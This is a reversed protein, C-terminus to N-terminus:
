INLMLAGVKLILITLDGLDQKRDYYKLENKNKKNKYIWFVLLVYYVGM